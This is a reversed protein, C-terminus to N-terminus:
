DRWLPLGMNRGCLPIASAAAIVTATVAAIATGPVGAKAPTGAMVATGTSTDPVMVQDHFSLPGVEDPDNHDRVGEIRLKRGSLPMTAPYASEPGAGGDAGAPHDHRIVDAVPHDLLVTAAVCTRDGQRAAVTASDFSRGARVPTVTLELPHAPSAAAAFVAHASRVTRGPLAKSATVISQALIQSGDVVNRGAGDGPGPSM